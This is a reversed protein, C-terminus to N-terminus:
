SSKEKAEILAKYLALCNQQAMPIGGTTSAPAFFLKNLAKTVIEAIKDDTDFLMLVRATDEPSAAEEPPTIGPLNLQKV